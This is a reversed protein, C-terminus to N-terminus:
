DEVEIVRAWGEDVAYQIDRHYKTTLLILVKYPPREGIRGVEGDTVLVVLDPPPQETSLLDLAPTLWTGGHGVLLRAETETSIVGHDHVETDVDVVRLEGGLADLLAVTESAVRLNAAYMSGSTDRVLAIRPVLSITGAMRPCGPGYGLGGQRINVRSWDTEDQGPRRDLAHLAEARTQERWDVKSPLLAEQLAKRMGLPISGPKLGELKEAAELTSRIVEELKAESWRPLGKGVEGFEGGDQGEQPMDPACGDGPVSSGGPMGKGGQEARKQLLLDYLQEYTLGCDDALGIDSPYVGITRQGDHPEIIRWPKNAGAKALERLSPNITMDMAVGSVHDDFNPTRSKLAKARHPHKRLVHWAEHLLVFALAPAGGITPIVKTIFDPHAFLQGHENVGMTPAMVLEGNEMSPTLVREDIRYSFALLCSMMWPQATIAIQRAISFLEEPTHNAM